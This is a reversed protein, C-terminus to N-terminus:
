AAMNCVAAIRVEFLFSDLFHWLFKPTQVSMLEGEPSRKEGYILGAAFVTDVLCKNDLKAPCRHVDRFIDWFEPLAALKAMDTRPICMAFKQVVSAAITPMDPLKSTERYLGFADELSYVDFKLYNLIQEKSLEAFKPRGLKGKHVRYIDYKKEMSKVVADEYGAIENVIQMQKKLNEELSGAAPKEAIALANKEQDTEVVTVTTDTSKGELQLLAPNRTRDTLFNEIKINTLQKKNELYKQYQPEVRHAAEGTPEPLLFDSFKYTPEALLGETNNWPEFTRFKIGYDPIVNEPRRSHLRLYLKREREVHLLRNFVKAEIMRRYNELM